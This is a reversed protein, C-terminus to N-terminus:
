KWIDQLNINIIEELEKISPDFIHALKQRIITNIPKKTSPKSNLKYLWSSFGRRTHAPIFIKSLNTLFNETSYIKHIFKSRIKSSSNYKKYEKLKYNTDIGLFGYMDILNNEITKFFHEFIYIRVNEKGFLNIYRKVQPTYIARDIYAYQYKWIDINNLFDKSTMRNNEQSIADAFSLQEHGNKVNHNWLAYSMEIPNRLIIIIKTDLGLSNAIKQPAEKSYLYAGSAEGIRTHQQRAQSFYSLYDSFSMSNNEYKGAFYSIEKCAPMFVAPHQRLYEFLSTTGCKAAGVILFNPKRPM